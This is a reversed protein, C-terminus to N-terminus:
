LNCSPSSLKSFYFLFKAYALPFSGFNFLETTKVHFDGKAFNNFIEINSLIDHYPLSDVYLEIFNHTPLKTDSDRKPPLHYM